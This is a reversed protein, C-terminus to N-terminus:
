AAPTHTVPGTWRFTLSSEMTVNQGATIPPQVLFASGSKTAGNPMLWTLTETSGSIVDLDTITVFITARLQGWDPTDGALYAQGGTDTDVTCQLEVYAPGDYEVGAETKYVGVLVSGFTISGYGSTASM